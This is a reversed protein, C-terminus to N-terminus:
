RLAHLADGLPTLSPADEIKSVAALVRDVGNDTLRRSANSIFKQRLREDGFPRRPGGLVDRVEATYRASQRTILEMRGSYHEPFGTHEVPTWRVMRAASLLREDLATRDFTEVDLQGNLLRAALCYPLSWKAQYASAPRLKAEWPECILPAEERPVHCYITEVAEAAIGQALITELCELFPQIYHCCPYAKFAADPLHWTRGLDDILVGLREACQSSRAYARYFGFRGEFVTGPGSMGARALEAAVIGAHAPWGGHIHKATSGNALFEFLGGAQSGAIGIANTMADPELGMLAAAALAAAFPGAVATVQFGYPQLTGPAALGLRIFLEWGLVIASLLRAGTASEREATALAAPVVVTSGHVVSAIHTDDFELAHILAGNLLAASPAPLREAVGLGTSESGRGLALVAREIRPRTRLASAALGVGLADLLHDKAAKVVLKPIDDSRLSGAFDAIRRSIPRGDAAPAM